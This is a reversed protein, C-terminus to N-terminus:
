YKEDIEKYNQKIYIYIYYITQNAHKWRQIFLIISYIPKQELYKHKIWVSYETATFENM